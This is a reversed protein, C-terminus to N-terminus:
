KLVAFKKFKVERRGGENAEIRVIYVGNTQRSFDFGIENYENATTQEMRTGGVVHGSIDLIDVKVDAGRTVFFRVTANKQVPSPYIYFSGLLFTQNVVVDPLIGAFRGWNKTSNMYGSWSCEDGPFDWIYIKGSDSGCALELDGDLDLDFVAGPSSFGGDGFLPSFASQRSRDSILKLQGQSISDVAALGFIIEERGATDLEAVLLPHLINEETYLPFNNESTGNRNCVFLTKSSSPAIIELYGDRDIDALAPTFYFTTDIWIEFKQELTDRGYIYVTGYGNIIVAEPEGDRDVDGVVPSAYTLMNHLSNTFKRVIGDKNLLWFIGESGLVGIERSAEDFVCPTSLIWSGLDVPFNALGTGDGNLCYLKRDQSGFIVELVGDADIDFL